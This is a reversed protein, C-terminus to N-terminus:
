IRQMATASSIEKKGIGINEKHKVQGYKRRYKDDVELLYFAGEELLEFKTTVKGLIKGYKREKDLLIADFEEPSVKVRKALRAEFDILKRMDQLDDKFRVTFMSSMLGSGYSFLIASKGKLNPQLLLSILGTYLSGTYINGLTKSLYLTPHM